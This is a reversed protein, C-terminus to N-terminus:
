KSLTGEVTVPFTIEPRDLEKIPLRSVLQGAIFFSAPRNNQLLQLAGAALQRFDLRFRIELPANGKAPIVYEGGMLNMQLDRSDGLGARGKLGLIHLHFSNPNSVDLVVKAEAGDTGFHTFEADRIRIIPPRVVPLQGKRQFPIAVTKSESLQVHVNGKLEYPFSDESPLDTAEILHYIDEWRLRFPLELLADGNAPVTIGRDQTGSFLPKGAVALQYDTKPIPLSIPLPNAVRFRAALTADEFTISRIRLDHFTIEPGQMQQLTKCAGLGLLGILLAIGASRYIRPHPM